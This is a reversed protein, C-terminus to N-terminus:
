TSVNWLFLGRYPSRLCGYSVPLGFVRFSNIDFRRTQKHKYPRVQERSQRPNIRRTAPFIEAGAHFLESILSSASCRQLAMVWTLEHNTDSQSSNRPSRKPWLYILVPSAKQRKSNTILPRFVAIITRICNLPPVGLLRRWAWGVKQDLSFSLSTPHSSGPHFSLM